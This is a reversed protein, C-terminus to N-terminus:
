RALFYCAAMLLGLSVMAAGSCFATFERRPDCCHRPRAPLTTARHTQLQYRAADRVVGTESHVEASAFERDLIAAIMGPFGMGRPLNETLPTNTAARYAAVLRLPDTRRFENLELEREERTMPQKMHQSSGIQTALRAPLGFMTRPLYDPRQEHHDRHPAESGGPSDNNIVLTWPVRNHRYDAPHENLIRRGDRQPPPSDM